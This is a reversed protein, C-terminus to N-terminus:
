DSSTIPSRHHRVTEWLVWIAGLVVVGCALNLGIVINGLEPQKALKVANFMAAAIGAALCLTIGLNLLWRPCKDHPMFSAPILAVAIAILASGSTQTLILFALKLALGIAVLFYAWSVLEKAREDM